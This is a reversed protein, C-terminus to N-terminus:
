CVLLQYNAEKHFVEILHILMVEDANQPQQTM